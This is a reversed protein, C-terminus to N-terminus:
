SRLKRQSTLTITNLPVIRISPLAPHCIAPRTVLFSNKREKVPLSTARSRLEDLPSRSAPLRKRRRCAFQSFSSFCRLPWLLLYNPRLFHTVARPRRASCLAPSRLVTTSYIFLLPFRLRLFGTFVKAKQKRLPTLFPTGCAVESKKAAQLSACEHCWRKFTFFVLPALSQPLFQYWKETRINNAMIFNSSCSDWSCSRM